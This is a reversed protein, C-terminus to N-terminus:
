RQRSEHQQKFNLGQKELGKLYVKKDDAKEKKRGLELGELVKDTSSLDGVMRKEPSPHKRILYPVASIQKKVTLEPHKKIDFVDIHCHGHLYDKCIGRLNELALASRRSDGIIYLEIQWTDPSQGRAM